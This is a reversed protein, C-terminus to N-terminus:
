ITVSKTDRYAKLRAAVFNNFNTSDTSSDMLIFKFIFNIVDDNITKIKSTNAYLKILPSVREILEIVVDSCFKRIGKSIRIAKYQDDEKILKDRVNKCIVNVYFEFTSGTTSHTDDNSETENEEAGNTALLAKQVVKLPHVLHYVESDKFNPQVIHEVQIIAKMSSRANIMASRVLTQVVYDLASSLVVSADNSFRCRLKSVYEIKESLSGTKAPFAGMSKYKKTDETTKAAKLRKRLTDHKNKRVDYITSYAKEVLATTDDSISNLDPTEGNKEQALLAKLENCANEVKANVNNKDVHKRVRSVSLDIGIIKSM